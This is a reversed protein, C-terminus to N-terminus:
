EFLQEKFEKLIGVYKDQIHLKLLEVIAYFSRSLRHYYIKERLISYIFACLILLHLLYSVKVVVFQEVVRVSVM